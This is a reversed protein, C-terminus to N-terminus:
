SNTVSLPNKYTTGIFRFLSTISATFYNALSTPAGSEITQSMDFSCVWLSRRINQWSMPVVSRARSSPVGHVLLASNYMLNSFSATLTPLTLSLKITADLKESDRFLIAPSSNDSKVALRLTLTTGSLNTYETRNVLLNITTDIMQTKHPTTYNRHVQTNREVNATFLSFFSFFTAGCCLVTM